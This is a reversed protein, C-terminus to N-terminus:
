EKAEIAKEIVQLAEIVKLHDARNLNLIGTANRLLELAEKPNM